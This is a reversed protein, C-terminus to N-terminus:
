LAKEERKRLYMILPVAMIAVLVFLILSMTTSQAYLGKGFTNWIFLNLVETSQGPGGATMAQVVDFSNMSGLLATAINFTFAPALLPFKVKWFIQRKNAGDITAAEIVQTDITKLGAIYILMTFGMWKWAHVAAVLVITWTPSGLWQIAVEHGALASLMQNLVGNTRLIAQWIYGAALASIIVPIFFLSRGFRNLRTDEEFLVALALGFTNQFIAVLIAYIITVRIDALLKGSDMLDALNELGNFSIVPNFASWNTFAYAFNMVTPALFFLGLVIGGPLLYYLPYNYHSGSHTDSRKRSM